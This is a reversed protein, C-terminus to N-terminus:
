ETSPHQKNYKENMIKVLKSFGFYSIILHKATSLLCFDKDIDNSSQIMVPLNVESIFNKLFKLNQNHNQRSFSYKGPNYINKVEPQGYHFATAIVIKNINNKSVYANVKKLITRMENKFKNVLDGLRLHVVLHTHDYKSIENEKLYQLMCTYLLNQKAANVPPTNSKGDMRKLDSNVYKDLYKRLLTDKYKDNKLLEQIIKHHLKQKIVDNMRYVENAKLTVVQEDLYSITFKENEQCKM